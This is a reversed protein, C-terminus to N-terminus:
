DLARAIGVTRRAGGSILGVGIAAQLVVGFSWCLTTSALLSPTVHATAAIAESAGIVIAVFLPRRLATLLTGRGPVRALRAYTEGPSLILGIEPSMSAVM